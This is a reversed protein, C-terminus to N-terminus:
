GGNKTIRNDIELELNILRDSIYDIVAKDESNREMLKPIAKKLEAIDKKMSKLSM